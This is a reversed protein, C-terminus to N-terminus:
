GLSTGSIMNVIAHVLGIVPDVIGQVWKSIFGGKGYAYYIAGCLLLPLVITWFPSAHEGKM